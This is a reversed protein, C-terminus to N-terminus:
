ECSWIYQDGREEMTAECTWQAEEGDEDSLKVFGTLHRADRKIFEVASITLGEARAKSTIETKIADIDGDVFGGADCGAILLFSAIFGKKM